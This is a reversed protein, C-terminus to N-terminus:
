HGNLWGATEWGPDAEVLARERHQSRSGPASLSLTSCTPQSRRNTYFPFEGSALVSTLAPRVVMEEMRSLLSCTGLPDFVFLTFIFFFAEHTM